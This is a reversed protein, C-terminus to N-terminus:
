FAAYSQGGHLLALRCAWHHLHMEPPQQGQGGEVGRKSARPCFPGSIMPPRIGHWSPSLTLVVCLAYHLLANGLLNNGLVKSPYAKGWQLM